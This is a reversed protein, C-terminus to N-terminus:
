RTSHRLHPQTLLGWASMCLHHPSPSHNHRCLLSQGRDRGERGGAQTGIKRGEEREAKEAERKREEAAKGM